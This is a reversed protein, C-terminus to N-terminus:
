KKREAEAASILGDKDADLANFEAPTGLFERRSVDGDKNRDMKRFWAPGRTPANRNGAPVMMGSEDVVFGGGYMAVANGQSVTLRLQRPIDAPGLAGDGGRDLKRFNRAADALERMSLRGDRSTDLLDFLGRGQDAIQVVIQGSGGAKLLDLFANFEAVFLKGDGDRDMLDFSNALYQLQPSTRIQAKDMYLKAEAETKFQQRYYASNDGVNVTGARVFDVTDGPLSLRAGGDNSATVARELEANRGTPLVRVAKPAFRGMVESMGEALTGLSVQLELDSPQALWTALTATDLDRLAKKVFEPARPSIKAITLRSYPERAAQLAQLVKAASANAPEGTTLAIFAPSAVPSRRMGPRGYDNEEVVQGYFPNSQRQLLEAKTIIEDEDQDLKALKDWAVALQSPSIEGGSGVLKIFAATLREAQTSPPQIAVRMAGLGGRRYYNGFEERDVKGDKNTDLDALRPGPQQGNFIYNIGQQFAFPPLMKAVEDANLTKDGNRDTFAFAKDLFGGWSATASKGNVQVHLRIKYLRDESRFVLDQIDAKATAAQPKAPAPLMTVFAHAASGAFGCAALILLYRM